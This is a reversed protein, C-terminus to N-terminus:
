RFASTLIPEVIKQVSEDFIEDTVKKVFNKLTNENFRLTILRDSMDEELAKFKSGSTKEPVILIANDAVGEDIANKLRKAAYFVTVGGSRNWNKINPAEICYKKTLGDKNLEIILDIKTKSREIKGGLSSINVNIGKAEGIHKLAKILADSIVTPTLKIVYEETKPIEAKVEEKKGYLIEDLKSIMHRIAERPNGNSKSYIESIDEETFPFLKDDPPVMNQRDWYSEMAKVIFEKLDDLTFPKLKVPQEIRTQITKDATSYIRDWIETLCSALILTNKTENYIKKIAELFKTEGEPGYMNYPGELEDIFLVLPRSTENTLVRIAAFAIDDDDIISRVGLGTLEDDSLNEALLWRKALDSRKKDLKYIILAKVFDSYVGPYEELSKRIVDELSDKRFWGKHEYHRNVINESAEDFIWSGTEDVICTYFHLMIRTPSPPSPIYVTTWKKEDADEMDKIVWYFHTKGMGASGLVPQFRSLRDSNVMNILRIFAMDADGHPGPVDIEEPIDGRAVYRRFPPDMRLLDLLENKDDKESL